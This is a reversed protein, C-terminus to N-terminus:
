YEDTDSVAVKLKYKTTFSSRCSSLWRCHSFFQPAKSVNILDNVSVSQFIVPTWLEHQPDPRRVQTDNALVAREGEKPYAIDVVSNMEGPQLTRTLSSGDPWSVELVTVEDNGSLRPHFFFCFLVNLMVCRTCSGKLFFGNLIRKKM